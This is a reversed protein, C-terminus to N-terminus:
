FPVTIVQGDARDSLLGLTVSDIAVSIPKVSGDCFVFNVVGTHYSGFRNSYTDAPTRALPLSPGAGRFACGHDGNYASCDGRAEEGFHGIEVHKEGALFTNSLGDKIQELRYGPVLSPTPTAVSWNNALRFVGTNGPSNTTQGQTAGTWWYDSGTSGVNCAYDSLAGPLVIAANADDVDGPTSLGGPGRRSPCFYIPVSTTRAAATQTYFSGSTLTWQRYLNDQEVHPLIEVLWTYIADRRSNPLCNRHTEAFTHCAIGIQKLNNKCTSAAASERVKQVAPLLMAILIAIIAIVVLLEILTFARRAQRSSSMSM